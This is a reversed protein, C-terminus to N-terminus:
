HFSSTGCGQPVRDHPVPLDSPTRVVHSLVNRQTGRRIGSGEHKPGALAVSGKPGQKEYVAFAVVRHEDGPRNVESVMVINDRIYEQCRMRMGYEFDDPFQKRKSFRWDYYPDDGACALLIEGLADADTDRARRPALRSM